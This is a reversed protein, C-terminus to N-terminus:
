VPDKQKPNGFLKTFLNFFFKSHDKYRSYILRGGLCFLVIWAIVQLVKPTLVYWILLRSEHTADSYHAFLSIAIALGLIVQIIRKLM